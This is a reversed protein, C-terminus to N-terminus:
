SGNWAVVKSCVANRCCDWDSFWWTFCFGRECKPYNHWCNTTIERQLLFGYNILLMVCWIVSTLCM